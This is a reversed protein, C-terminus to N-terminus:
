PKSINVEKVPKLARLRQVISRFNKLSMDGMQITIKDTVRTDTQINSINFGRLSRAISLIQGPGSEWVRIHLAPPHNNEFEQWSINIRHQPLILSIQECNTRHITLQHKKQVAIVEDGPLPLCCPALNIISLSESNHKLKLQPQIARKQFWSIWRPTKQTQLMNLQSKSFIQHKLFFLRADIKGEGVQFYFSKLRLNEKQLAKLFVRRIKSTPASPLVDKLINQMRQRGIIRINRDTRYNIWRRISLKARNSRVYQLWSSSPFTDARSLIKVVDGDNLIQFPTTRKNYIKAGCCHLGLDTHIAFAFDLVSAGAPLTHLDGKPTFVQLTDMKSQRLVDEMRLNDEHYNDLMGLYSSYYHELEEQSGKWGAIIGLQNTHKMQSSVLRFFVKEGGIFMETHLAQYHNPLPNSIYDRISLPSVRFIMHLHGLIIYCTKANQATIEIGKFSCSPVDDSIIFESAIHYIPEVVPTKTVPILEKELLRCLGRVKVSEEKKKEKLLAEVKSYRLPYLYRFALSSLETSINQMGIREAMPVYVGWTERSIIRQKGRSLPELDRMNDLRDFLKVQLTRIDRVSQSILRRYTAFVPLASTGQPGEKVQRVKTLGEVMDAISSGYTQKMQTKTFSTDEILDHLLAVVTAEVGLGAQATMLAVRMPHLIYPEESIRWQGRHGSRADALARALMRKPRFGVKNHCKYISYKLSRLNKSYKRLVKFRQYPDNKDQQDPSYITHAGKNHLPLEDPHVVTPLPTKM